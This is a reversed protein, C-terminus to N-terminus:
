PNISCLNWGMLGKKVLGQLGVNPVSV